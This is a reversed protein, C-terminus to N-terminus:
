RPNKVWVTNVPTDYSTGPYSDVITIIYSWIHLPCLYKGKWCQAVTANKVGNNYTRSEPYVKDLIHVRSIEHTLKCWKRCFIINGKWLILTWKYDGKSTTWYKFSLMGLLFAWSITQGISISMYSHKKKHNHLAIKAPISKQHKTPYEM